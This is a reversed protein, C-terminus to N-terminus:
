GTTESAALSQYGLVIDAYARANANNGNYAILAARVDNGHNKLKIMFLRIFRDTCAGVDGWLGQPSGVSSVSAQRERWFSPDTKINQLDYQFLGYGYLLNGTPLYGRAIRSEDSIKILGPAIDVYQTAELFAATNVPFAQRPQVNDLVLLRMMEAPSRGKVFIARDFWTYASEQCAVACLLALSIPTGTLKSRFIDGFNSLLWRTAPRVHSSPIGPGMVFCDQRARTARAAESSPSDMLLVLASTLGSLVSRRRANTV